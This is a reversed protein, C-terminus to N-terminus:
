VLAVPPTPHVGNKLELLLDGVTAHEDTLGLDSIPLTGPLQKSTIPLCTLQDDETLVALFGSADDGMQQLIFRLPDLLVACVVIIQHRNERPWAVLHAMFTQDNVAQSLRSMVAQRDVTRDDAVAVFKIMPKGGALAERWQGLTLDIFLAEDRNPRAMGDALSISDLWSNVDAWRWVLSRGAVGEPPPFPQSSSRTGDVWQQVNQRTRGVREAIDSIGVLDPDLRLVRMSPAISALRPLLDKLADVASSGENAVALRYVGHNESIQADLDSVLAAIIDENDFGIDSVVLLFEYDM